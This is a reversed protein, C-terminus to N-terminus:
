PGVASWNCVADVVLGNEIVLAVDDFYTVWMGDQTKRKCSIFDINELTRNELRGDDHHVQHVFSGNHVRICEFGNEEMRQQAVEPSVGEPYSQKLSAFIEIPAVPKSTRSAPSSACGVSTIAACVMVVGALHSFSHTHM